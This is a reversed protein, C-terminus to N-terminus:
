TSQPFHSLGRIGSFLREHRSLFVDAFKRKLGPNLRSDAAMELIKEKAARYKDFISKYAKPEIHLSQALYEFDSRNLKNSRGRISLAFDTEKPLYIKSSVFDYCPALSVEKNEKILVAWNKLHMDGNGTLFCLLTREFFDQSDLGVNKTYTRIAKGISEMTGAYKDTSQLIQYMTEKQLKTGDEMRDFRKIIYCLKGDAMEFLGHPPVPLGLDQAIDMCLEENQPLEPFREPEPKLIHTGGASVAELSWTQTNLKASLKIQAGSISMGSHEAALSPFDALGFAAAPIQARGFLGKLKNKDV